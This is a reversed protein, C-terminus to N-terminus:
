GRQQWLCAECLGGGASAMYRGCSLCSMSIAGSNKRHPQYAAGEPPAGGWVHPLSFDFRSGSSSDSGASDSDKDNDSSSIGGALCLAAAAATFLLVTVTMQRAKRSDLAHWGYSLIFVGAMYGLLLTAVMVVQSATISGGRLASVLVQVAWLASIGTIAAGCTVYTARKVLSPKENKTARTGTTRSRKETTPTTELM